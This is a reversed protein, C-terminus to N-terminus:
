QRVKTQQRGDVRANRNLYSRPCDQCLRSSSPARYSRLCGLGICWVCGLVIFQM